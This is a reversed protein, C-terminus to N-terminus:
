PPCLLTLEGEPTGGPFQLRGVAGCAPDVSDYYWGAEAAPGTQEIECRHRYLEGARVPGLARHARRGECSMGAPLTAVVRCACRGDAGVPLPRRLCAGGSATALTALLGQTYAGFDSACISGVTTRAGRDELGAALQVIRRPPFAFGGDATSCSPALREGLSPDVTEIMRPDDLWGDYGRSRDGVLDAPVGIVPAFVIQGPSPRLALLGDVYREIPYRTEPFAFCRLNLGVSTFREDQHFISYERVSCDEEDTLVVIALVADARHFETEDGHGTGGGVFIPPVYGPATWTTAAAPSLGKLVAELQQEFGCGGTGLSAVCAVESSFSAPDGGPDWGLVAPYTPACGARGSGATV